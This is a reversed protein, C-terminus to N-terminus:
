THLTSSSRTHQGRFSFKYLFPNVCGSLFTIARALRGALEFTKLLSENELSIAIINLINVLPIAAYFMFFALVILTVLKTLRNSSFFPSQNVGRHLCYYFIALLFFCIFFQFMELLSTQLKESDSKFQQYCYQFGYPTCGVDRQVPIYSALLGSVIWIGALLGKEGHDGLKAWIQPHLVQMYRQFSMLTVCFTSCFACWYGIYSVTKCAVSGFIWDHLLAWIWVPLPLLTLLDSIALSLMLRLTFNKEKLRRVLMVLVAVNGPVGLGFSLGM